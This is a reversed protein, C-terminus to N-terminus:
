RHEYSVKKLLSRDNEQHIELIPKEFAKRFRELDNELEELTEGFPSQPDKSWAFPEGEKDYYVSHINYSLYTTDNVTSSNRIVRYNWSM